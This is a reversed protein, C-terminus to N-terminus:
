QRALSLRRYCKAPPADVASEQTALAHPFNRLLKLLRGGPPLNVRTQGAESPRSLREQDSFTTRFSPTSNVSRPQNTLVIKGGSEVVTYLDGRGVLNELRARASHDAVLYYRDQTLWLKKFDQDNIFVQPAGPANSGYELNTVRGNLLLARRNTYFFISSFAYYQDDVILQGPPAKLLASALPRSSMYPDFVVM